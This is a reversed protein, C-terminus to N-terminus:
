YLIVNVCSDNNTSLYKNSSGADCEKKNIFIFYYYIFMAIILHMAVLVIQVVIRAHIVIM